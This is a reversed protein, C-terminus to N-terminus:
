QEGEVISSIAFQRPNMRNCIDSLCRNCCSYEDAAGKRYTAVFLPKEPCRKWGAPAGMQMFGARREGECRTLDARKIAKM